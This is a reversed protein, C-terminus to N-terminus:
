PDAAARQAKHLGVGLLLRRPAPLLRRRHQLAADPRAARARCRGRRAAQTILDAAVLITKRDGSRARSSSRSARRTPACCRSPCRPPSNRPTPAATSAPSRTAASRSSACRSALRTRAGRELQAKRRFLQGAVYLQHAIEGTRTDIFSRLLYFNTSACASIRARCPQAQPGVLGIFRGDQEDTLKVANAPTAVAPARRRLGACSRFLLAPGLFALLSPRTADREAWCPKMTRASRRPATQTFPPRAGDFSLPLGVLELDRRGAAAPHHRAGRDACRRRGPRAHPDPREPHRRSRAAAGM